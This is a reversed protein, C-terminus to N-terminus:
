ANPRKFEFMGCGYDLGGAADLAADEVFRGADDVLAFHELRLGDLYTVVTRPDFVRHANFCVRERGVPVSIFLRGGPKITRQLEEAAARSGEARMPDGYRGLGVHEIVHLSSVSDLSRDAFPLRNLDAGVSLIGSLTVSLPRYDVFVIPIQASLVSVMMVSSGIDVHRHPATQSLRRALWAGQFFYHPDFPTRASRDSLCPYADALRVSESGSLQRYRRLDFLFRPLHVLSALQRPDIFPLLWSRALGRLRASM